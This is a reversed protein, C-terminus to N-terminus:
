DEVDIGLRRFADAAQERTIRGAAFAAQVAQPTSLDVAARPQSPAVDRTKVEVARQVAARLKDRAERIPAGDKIARQWAKVQEPTLDSPPHGGLMADAYAATSLRALKARSTRGIDAAIRNARDRATNDIKVLEGEAELKALEAARVVGAAREADAAAQRRRATERDADSQEVRAADAPSTGLADGVQAILPGVRAISAKRPEDMAAIAAAVVDAKTPDNVNAQAIRFGQAVRAVEAPTLGYKAPNKIAAQAWEGRAAITRTLSGTTPDGKRGERAAILEVPEALAGIFVPAARGGGGGGSPMPASKPETFRPRVIGREDVEPQVGFQPANSPRGKAGYRQQTATQLGGILEYSKLRNAEDQKAIADARAQAAARQQAVAAEALAERRRNLAAQAVRDDQSPIADIAEAPTVPRMAGPGTPQPGMERSLPSGEAASLGTEPGAREMRGKGMESEAGYGPVMVKRTLDYGPADVDSSLRDLSRAFARQKEANDIEQQQRAGSTAEDYAKSGFHAAAQLGANLFTGGLDRLWATRSDERATNTAVKQNYANHRQAQAAGAVNSLVPIM